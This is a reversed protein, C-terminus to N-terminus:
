RSPPPSLDGRHPLITLLSRATVATLIVAAGALALPGPTEGLVLFVWIPNFIPELVTTLLSELATVHRVGYAFLIASLGIQFVGLVGIGIWSSATPAPSLFFFPVAVVATFGHGLLLSELPSGDKQMRLFLTSFAFFVGSVVSIVNGWLGETSLRGVFFLVMGGLVAAITVGDYWHTKEKLFWAGLFALYVPAMYQLVIANAATTLKNAAVFCIMTASYALAGGIQPLSWTFRPRRTPLMYMLIVLGGILSRM